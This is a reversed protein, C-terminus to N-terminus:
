EPLRFGNLFLETFPFGSPDSMGSVMLVALHQRSVWGKVAAKTGDDWQWFDLVGAADPHDPLRHGRGYGAAGAVKMSEKLYDMYATLLNECDETTMSSMTEGFEVEIVDFNFGGAEVSQTIVDLGDVSKEIKWEGPEAPLYVACGTTTIPYKRFSLAADQASVAAAALFLISLLFLKM